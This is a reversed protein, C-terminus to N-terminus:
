SKPILKYCKLVADKVCQYIKRESSPLAIFAEQARGILVTQLLLTKDEDSWNQDGAVNEFLSFFVNPDHENFKPLFKVMSALGSQPSSNELRGEAALRLRTRKVERDLELNKLRELEM